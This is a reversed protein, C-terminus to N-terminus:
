YRKKFVNELNIELEKLINSSLIKNGGEDIYGESLLFYKGNENLFFIEVTKNAPDVIWYETIKFLEYLEKKKYTDRSKSSPSIIEVILDPSGFFGQDKIQSFQSKSIFLLDPQIINNDDLVVDFPADFVEGLDKKYVYNCILLELNRSINQHDANPAPIMILNGEIIEYRIDDTLNLYDKYNYKKIPSLKM